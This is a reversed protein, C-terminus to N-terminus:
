TRKTRNSLIRFYEEHVSIGQSYGGRELFTPRIGDCGGGGDVMM